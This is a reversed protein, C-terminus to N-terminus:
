PTSKRRSASAPTACRATCCSRTLGASERDHCRVPSRARRRSSSPTASCISCCRACGDPTASSRTRCTPPWTVAGRPRTREGRSAVSSCRTPRGDAALPVAAARARAQGGRDELFRSHRQHDDLLSDASQKVMSSTTASNPTWVSTDLVLETMGIIGNMPTRIEHSMNALFESKAVNAAEAADRAVVLDHTRITVQKELNEGHLRLQHDQQEIQDLMLNFDDVLLGLEDNAGTTARVGYTRSTAIARATEALRFIPGSIVAQLQSSLAFAVISSVAM